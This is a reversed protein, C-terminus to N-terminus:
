YKNLVQLAWSLKSHPFFFLIDQKWPVWSRRVILCHCPSSIVTYEPVTHAMYMCPKNLNPRFIQRFLAKDWQDKVNKIASLLFSTMEVILNWDAWTKNILHFLVDPPRAVAEPCLFHMRTHTHTHTSVSTSLMAILIWPPRCCAM